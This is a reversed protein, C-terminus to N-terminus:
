FPIFLSNYKLPSSQTYCRTELFPIPLNNGIDKISLGVPNIKSNVNMLYVIGIYKDIGNNYLIYTYLQNTNTISNFPSFQKKNYSSLFKGKENWEKIKFNIFNKVEREISTTQQKNEEKQKNLEEKNKEEKKLEDCITCM